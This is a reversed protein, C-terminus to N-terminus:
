VQQTPMQFMGSPRGMSQKVCAVPGISPLGRAGASILARRQQGGEPWPSDYSM